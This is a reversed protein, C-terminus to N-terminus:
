ERGEVQCMDSSRRGVEWHIRDCGQNWSPGQEEQGCPRARATRGKQTRRQPVALRKTQSKERHMPNM